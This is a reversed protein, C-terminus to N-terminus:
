RRRSPTVRAWHDVPGDGRGLGPAGAIARRLWRTAARVAAVLDDGRALRATIAASLTCGTGHTHRTDVRRGRLWLCSGDVLLLDAVQAGPRHGGKILVATPGLTRLARAAAEIDADRELAGGGLLAAAEPLNPTLLDAQPLLERRLADLGDADLLRAGHKSLLVPDVVLPRLARRTVAAAVAQVVDATGLAGTKTAAPRLDDAVADIQAVVLGAPLGELRQVGLTNQATILTVASAGYVGHQHFTKLDAQIGAGGGSDSGAITLAISPSPSTVSDKCRGPTRPESRQPSPRFPPVSGAVGQRRRETPM